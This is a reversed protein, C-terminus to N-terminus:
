VLIQFSLIGILVKLAELITDKPISVSPEQMYLTPRAHCCCYPIMAMGAYLSYPFISFPLIFSRVKKGEIGFQFLQINHAQLFKLNEQPYPEM